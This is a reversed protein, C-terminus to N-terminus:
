ASLIDGCSCEHNHISSEQVPLALLKIHMITHMSIGTPLITLVVADLNSTVESGNVRLLFVSPDYSKLTTPRIFENAEIIGDM